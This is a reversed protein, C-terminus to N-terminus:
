NLQVHALVPLHDSIHKNNEMRDDIHMYRNVTANKILVYDIRDTLNKKHDFGNFTGTPGYFPQRSISQGDQLVNKLYQIPAEQPKLNLDGMLIVPLNETNLEKIKAVILQASKERALTGRHDFHTNFVWFQKQTQLDQFLAYTCIRELAADWGVSIKQPTDSLWFTESQIMKYKSVNFLIPSYEGKTKGDERGVGVYNFGKLHQNLYSLQRDLVEQMGVIGPQYHTILNVMAEKRDNWNNITDGTNDYKINYSMVIADQAITTTTFLLFILIQLAIKM